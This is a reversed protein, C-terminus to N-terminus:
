GPDWGPRRGIRARGSAAAWGRASARAAARPGWAVGNALGMPGVSTREVASKVQTRMRELMLKEQEANLTGAWVRADLTAKRDALIAEVVKDESIGKAQAIQALSQGAQRQAAVDAPQVGLLKAVPELASFAGGWRGGPGGPQCYATGATPTAAPAPDAALAPIAAGAFIMAGTALGILYKRGNM